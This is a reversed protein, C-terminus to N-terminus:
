VYLRVADAFGEDLLELLLKGVEAQSVRDATLDREVDEGGAPVLCECELVHRLFLEGLNVKETVTPACRVNGPSLAM